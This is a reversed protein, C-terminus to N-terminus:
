PTLTTELKKSIHPAKKAMIRVLVLRGTRGTEEKKKRGKRERKLFFYSRQAGGKLSYPDQCLARGIEISPNSRQAHKHVGMSNSDDDAPSEEDFQAVQSRMEVERPARSETQIPQAYRVPVNVDGARTLVSYNQLLIRAGEEYCRGPELYRNLPMLYDKGIAAIVAMM